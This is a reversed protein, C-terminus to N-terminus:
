AAEGPLVATELALVTLAAADAPGRADAELSGNESGASGTCGPAAPAAVAGTSRPEANSARAAEAATWYTQPALRAKGNGSASYHLRSEGTSPQEQQYRLLPQLSGTSRFGYCCRLSMSSARRARRRIQLQRSRATRIRTHTVQEAHSDFPFPGASVLDHLLPANIESRARKQPTGKYPYM